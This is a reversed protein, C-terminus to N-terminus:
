TGDSDKRIETGSFGIGTARDVKMVEFGKTKMFDLVEQNGSLCIDFEPLISLDELGTLVTNRFGIVEVNDTYSFAKQFIAIREEISLVHPVDDTIGIIVKKYTQLLDGITIVHGLHPPQFKGPFFAVSEETSLIVKGSYKPEDCIVNFIEFYNKHSLLEMVINSEKIVMNFTEYLVNLDCLPYLVEVKKINNEIREPKEDVHCANHMILLVLECEPSPVYMDINKDEHTHGTDLKVRTRFVHKQFKESFPKQVEFHCYPSFTYFGNYCDITLETDTTYHVRAMNVYSREDNDFVWGTNSGFYADGWSVVRVHHKGDYVLRISGEIDDVNWISSNCSVSIGRVIVYDIKENNFFEIFKELVIPESEHPVPFDM